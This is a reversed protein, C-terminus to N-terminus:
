ALVRTVTADVADSAFFPPIGRGWSHGLLAYQLEHTNYRVANPQPAVPQAAPPVSGFPSPVEVARKKQAPEAAQNSGIFCIISQNLCSM